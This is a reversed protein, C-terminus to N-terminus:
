EQGMGDQQQQQQHQYAGRGGRNGRGRGRYPRYQGGNNGHYGGHQQGQQGDDNSSNNNYPSPRGNHYNGRYWSGRHGRGSYQQHPHVLEQQQATAEAAPYQPGPQQRTFFKDRSIIQSASMGGRPRAAAGPTAPAFPEPEPPPPPFGQSPLSTAPPAPATAPAPVRPRPEGIHLQSKLEAALTVASPAQAQPQSKSGGINLMSKLEEAVAEKPRPRIATQAPSPAAQQSGQKWPNRPPPGSTPRQQQQQQQPRQPRSMVTVQGRNRDSDVPQQDQPRRAAFPPYGHPAPGIRGETPAQSHPDIRLAHPPQIRTLNVLGWRPVAMGRYESCRDNLSSGGLFSHDFLVEVQDKEIAVVTGKAAFPVSGTDQVSVVRDGLQFSQNTLRSQCHSPKLLIQPPVNKLVIPKLTSPQQLVRDAEQELRRVFEKTMSVANLHVREFSGVESKRLWDRVETLMKVAETEDPHFDSPRLFDGRRQRGLPQIFDPFTDCFSKILAVAKASYEWGNGMKRTYGLIKQKKVEFKMCLGLNWKQDQRPMMVHLSSTLRSLAGYNINLMRAVADASQYREQQAFERALTHGFDPERGDGQGSVILRVDAVSNSVGIVTGPCGYSFQGLFFIQTKLPYELHLPPPPHEMYRPDPHVVSPIITQLAVTTIDDYDFDKVIAGNDLRRMGRLVAVGVLTDVEGIIAAFRKSYHYEIEEVRRHWMDLEWPQHPVSLVQAKGGRRSRDVSYRMKDDDIWAVEAEILNPYGIYVRKGLLFRTAAEAKHTADVEPLLLSVVMTENRSAAQFVHVGHVGLMGTHPLTKLTPFGALMDQGHKAGKMATMRLDRGGAKPLVYRQMRCHCQVLDPFIGPLSSPYPTGAPDIHFFLFADGHQNRSREEATLHRERSQMAALLRKEDIFPIKIVAEWDNAKGNLDLDFDEPYFDSIPSTENTMLEHYAAPILSKSATPLVGMLQEFPLFPTGLEFEFKFSELGVLDSIKPAYHYPFFWGWSAVGEYYYSLVWQLGEVYKFVLQQLEASHDRRPFELKQEYYLRKWNVMEQEYVETAAPHEPQGEDTIDAAKWKKLVRLQADISEEDASDDDEHTQIRFMVEGDKARTRGFSLGLDTAVAELFHRDQLDIDASFLLPVVGSDGDGDVDVDDDDGVVDDVRSGSARSAMYEEIQELLQFQHRSIALKGARRFSLSPAGRAPQKKSNLLAEKVEPMEEEFAAVEVERLHHFMAQIGKLNLRGHDNLYNGVQPLINKYVKFMLSLAGKNIHLNPLNPLFDNGVFFSMVVFDDIVRELDYAFPLTSSLSNFELDLYERFLSLHMLFFNQSELTAPSSKKKRPGFTVEERLLAFHPEHTVLGLMILDADLGYLCHRTNPDYGDQVKSLRIYEMIKHEGEGPVEHGSLIVRVGKWNADESVKKNVYYKLHASLKTMFVTGPTICNSDFAEQEPLEVKNRLAQERRARAEQATRFRRSRQQNMKARPAVGDIAMFFVKRPRIKNFLHDIYNFISVFIQQETMRFHVDEDHPHSCNHVISNMDLYLNDFEPIRNETIMQSCM